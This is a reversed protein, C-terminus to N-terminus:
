TIEKKTSIKKISFFSLASERRRSVRVNQTSSFLLYHFLFSSHFLSSRCPISVCLLSHLRSFSRFLTLSFFLPLAHSHSLSLYLLSCTSLGFSFYLVFLCLWYHAWFPSPAETWHNEANNKWFYHFMTSLLTVLAIRSKKFPSLPILLIFLVRMLRM